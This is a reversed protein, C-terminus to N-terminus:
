AQSIRTVAPIRASAVPSTMARAEAVVGARDVVVAAVKGSLSVSLVEEEALAARAAIGVVQIRVM